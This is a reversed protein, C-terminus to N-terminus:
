LQYGPTHRPPNADVWERARRWPCEPKHWAPDVDRAQERQTEDRYREIKDTYTSKPVEPVDSDCLPCYARGEYGVEIPDLAALDRVISETAFDM